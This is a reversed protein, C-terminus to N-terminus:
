RYNPSKALQLKSGLQEGKKIEISIDSAQPLPFDMTENAVSASRHPLLGPYYAHHAEPLNASIPRDFTLQEHGLYSSNKSRSDDRSQGERDVECTEEM